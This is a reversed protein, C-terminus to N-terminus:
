PMDRIHFKNPGTIEVVKNLLLDPDGSQLVHQVVVLLRLWQEDRSLWSERLLIMGPHLEVNLLGMFDRANTTVIVFDRELAYQWIIPDPCGSLGVHPVSQAYIGLEALRQVIAPSIHEDLLLRM